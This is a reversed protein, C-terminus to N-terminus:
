ATPPGATQAARRPPTLWPCLCKFFALLREGMRTMWNDEQGGGFDMDAAFAGFPASFSAVLAAAGAVGVGGLMVRRSSTTTHHVERDVSPNEHSKSCLSHGRLVMPAMIFAFASSRGVCLALLVALKAM